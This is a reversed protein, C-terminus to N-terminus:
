SIARTISHLGYYKAKSVNQWSESNKSLDTISYIPAHEDEAKIVDLVVDYNGLDKQEEIYAERSQFENMYRKTDRATLFYQMSCSLAWILAISTLIRRYNVDLSDIQYIINGASVIAMAIIGFWARYPFLPSFLMIGAGAVSGLFYMVSIGIVYNKKKRNNWLLVGLIFVIAIIASLLIIFNGPISVIRYLAGRTANETADDVRIKNGPALMMFPYSVFAGILTTVFFPRFKYKKIQFYIIFLITMGIFVASMNESTGGSIFGAFLMIIAHLIPHKDEGDDAYLRFSLLTFLRFTTGWLYNISGTFYVTAFGWQHPFTWLALNIVLFLLASHKKKKGICNLYIAITLLVYIFSNIYNFIPKGILVMLQVISHTIIRGNTGIYHAKMSTVIDAISEIRHETPMLPQNSFVFNYVFDDACFPTNINLFFMLSFSVLAIFCIALLNLKNNRNFKNESSCLCSFLNEFFDNTKKSVNQIFSDFKVHSM